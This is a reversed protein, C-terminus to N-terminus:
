GGGSSSRPTQVLDLRYGFDSVPQSDAADTKLPRATKVWLTLGPDYGGPNTVFLDRFIALDAADLFLTLVLNRNLSAPTYDIRSAAKAGARLSVSAMGSTRVGGDTASANVACAGRFEFQESREPGYRVRVGVSAVALRHETAVPKEAKPKEAKKPPVAAKPRPKPKKTKLAM